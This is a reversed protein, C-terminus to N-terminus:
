VLDVFEHIKESLCADVLLKCRFHDLLYRSYALVSNSGQVEVVAKIQACMLVVFYACVPKRTRDMSIKSEVDSNMLRM